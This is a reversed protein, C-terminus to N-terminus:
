EERMESIVAITEEFPTLDNKVLFVWQTAPSCLDCEFIQNECRKTNIVRMLRITECCGIFSTIPDLDIGLCITQQEGIDEVCCFGDPTHGSLIKELLSWMDRYAYKQDRSDSERLVVVEPSRDEFHIELDQVLGKDTVFSVVIERYIPAVACIFAQGSEEEMRIAISDDTFVVKEVRGGDVVVRNQHISSFKCKLSTTTDIQHFIAGSLIGSSSIVGLLTIQFLRRFKM